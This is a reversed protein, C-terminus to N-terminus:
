CASCRGSPCPTPFSYSVSPPSPSHLADAPDRRGGHPSQHSGSALIMIRIRIWPAPDQSYTHTGNHIRIYADLAMILLAFALCSRVLSFLSLGKVHIQEGLLFLSDITGARSSPGGEMEMGPITDQALWLVLPCLQRTARSTGARAENTFCARSGM